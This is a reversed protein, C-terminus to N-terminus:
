EKTGSVESCLVCRYHIQQSEKWRQLAMTLIAIQQVTSEFSDLFRLLTCYGMFHLCTQVPLSDYFTASTNYMANAGDTVFHNQFEDHTKITNHNMNGFTPFTSIRAAPGQNLFISVTPKPVCAGSNSIIDKFKHIAEDLHLNYEDSDVIEQEIDEVETGDLIKSDFNELLNRKKVLTEIAASLEQNKFDNELIKDNTKNILRTTASRHGSRIAKLKEM